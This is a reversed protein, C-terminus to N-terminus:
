KDFRIPDQHNSHREELYRKLQGLRRSVTPESTGLEAAIEKSTKGQLKRQVISRLLENEETYARLQLLLEELEAFLSPDDSNDDPIEEAFEGIANPANKGKRNAMRAKNRAIGIALAWLDYPDSAEAREGDKRVRKILSHFAANAVGESDEIRRGAGLFRTAVARLKPGYQQWLTNIESEELRKHNREASSMQNCGLRTQGKSHRENVSENNCGLPVLKVSLLRLCTKNQLRLGETLVLRGLLFDFGM